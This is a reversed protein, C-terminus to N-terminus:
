RSGIYRAATYHHGHCAIAYIKANAHTPQSIAPKHPRGLINLTEIKCTISLFIRIGIDAIARNRLCATHTSKSHRTRRGNHLKNSSRGSISQPICALHVLNRYRAIWEETQWWQIKLSHRCSDIHTFYATQVPGGHNICANGMAQWPYSLYPCTYDM